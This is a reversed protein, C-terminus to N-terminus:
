NIISVRVYLGASEDNNLIVKNLYLGNELDETKIKLSFLNKSSMEGPYISIPLSWNFVLSFNDENLLRISNITIPENDHENFIYFPKGWAANRYTQWISTSDNNFYTLQENPFYFSIHDSWGLLTSDVIMVLKPDSKIIDECSCLFILGISAIIVLVKKM